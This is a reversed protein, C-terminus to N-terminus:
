EAKEPREGNEEHLVNDVALIAGELDAMKRVVNDSPMMGAQAAGIVLERQASKLRDMLDNLESM